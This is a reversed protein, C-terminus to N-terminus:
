TTHALNPMAAPMSPARSIFAAYSLISCSFHFLTPHSSSAELPLWRPVSSPLNSTQHLLVYSLSLSFLSHYSPLQLRPWSPSRGSRRIYPRAWQQLLVYLSPSFFFQLSLWHKKNEYSSTNSPLTQARSNYICDMFSIWANKRLFMQTCHTVLATHRTSHHM